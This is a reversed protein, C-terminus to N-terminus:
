ILGNSYEGHFSNLVSYSQGNSESSSSYDSFESYNKERSKYGYISTKPILEYSM